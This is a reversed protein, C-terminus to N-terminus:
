PAQQIVLHCLDLEDMMIMKKKKKMVNKDEEKIPIALFSFLHL